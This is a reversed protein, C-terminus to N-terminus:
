RSSRRPYFNDAYSGVSLHRHNICRKTECSHMVVRDAPRDRGTVLEWAVVHAGRQRGQRTDWVQGYGKGLVSGPWVICEDTERLLLGLLMQMGEGYGHALARM